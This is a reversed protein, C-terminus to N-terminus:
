DWEWDGIREGRVAKMAVDVDIQPIVVEGQANIRVTIADLFGTAVMKDFMDQGYENVIEEVTPM